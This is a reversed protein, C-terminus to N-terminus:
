SVEANMLGFFDNSGSDSSEKKKRKFSKRTPKATNAKKVTKKSEDESPPTAVIADSASLYGAAVLKMAHDMNPDDRKLIFKQLPSLTRELFSVTVGGKRVNTFEVQDGSLPPSGQESVEGEFSILGKRKAWLVDANKCVDDSVDVVAGACLKNRIASIVLEGKLSKSVIIKM